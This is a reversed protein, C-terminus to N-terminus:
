MVKCLVDEDNIVVYRKEGDPVMKGSYKAFVIMDGVKVGKIWEDSCNPGMAIVTGKDVGAKRRQADEHDEAAVLGAKKLRDHTEDIPVEIIIRCGVPDLM